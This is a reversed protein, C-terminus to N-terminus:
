GYIDKIARREIEEAGPLRLDIAAGAQGLDLAEGGALGLGMAELDDEALGVMLARQDVPHLFGTLFGAAHDHVSSGEGMGRHREIVRKAGIVFRDDLHMQGIREAALLEAAMGIDAQHRGAHDAAELFRAIDHGDIGHGFQHSAPPILASSGVLPAPLALRGLTSASRTRSSEARSSSVPSVSISISSPPARTRTERWVCACAIGVIPAAGEAGPAAGGFSASLLALRPVVSVEGM